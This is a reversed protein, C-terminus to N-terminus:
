QKKMRNIWELQKFVKIYLNDTVSCAIGVLKKKSGEMGILLNGGDATIVEYEFLKKTAIFKQAREPDLKQTKKRLEVLDSPTDKYENM